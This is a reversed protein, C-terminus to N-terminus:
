FLPKENGELKEKVESPSGDVEFALGTASMLVSTGIIGNKSPTILLVNSPNVFIEGGSTKILVFKM